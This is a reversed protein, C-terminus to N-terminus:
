HGPIGPTRDAALVLQAGPPPDFTFVDDNLAPTLNWSLIATYQPRAENRLATVVLKRPLPLDERRIWVQWDVGPGRVAYHRCIVGEVVGVGLDIATSVDTLRSADTGWAFLEALPVEVDYIHDLRKVLEPLTGPAPVTAYSNSRGTFVTFRQGDYLMLRDQRDGLVEVRLRDPRRVVLNAVAGYQVAQGTALVEDQTIRAIVQFAPLSRVLAGMRTLAAVTGTDVVGSATVAAATPETTAGRVATVGTAPQHACAALILIALAAASRMVPGRLGREAVGDERAQRFSEQEADAPTVPM